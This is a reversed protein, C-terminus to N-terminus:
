DTKKVLADTLLKSQYQYAHSAPLRVKKMLVVEQTILRLLHLTFLDKKKYLKKYLPHDANIYVMNGVSEVEPGDEGLHAIGCSVGFKKIRIRKVVSPRPMVKKEEKAGSPAESSADKEEEIKEQKKEPPVASGVLTSGTQKKLRTIARGSPFLDPNAVLAQRVKDLAERLQRSMKALNKADQEKKIEKLITGLQARMVSYFLKYKPDDHIFDNRSTTIPLFDANVNGTIRRVLTRYKEDLGFLEQKIFVQKVRCGIGPRSVLGPRAAVIIEGEIGGYMTKINVGISRGPIYKTVIRKGNLFVGFRKAHLPTAIKLYKEVEAPSFKKKLKKLIVKTGRRELSAARVRIIPLEWSADRKWLERDFIVRYLWVGKHSEVIFQDAAALAAFKGIGFQGIRKRGFRPSVSRIKKEESGVTFFQGLQRADMGTGNDEVTIKNPTVTVYVHTADADYANNVLERILEISEVYMREGLTLLHSKDVTVTITKPQKTRTM